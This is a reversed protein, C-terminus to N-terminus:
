TWTSRPDALHKKLTVPPRLLGERAPLGAARDVPGLRLRRQTPGGSFVVWLTDPEAAALGQAIPNPETSVELSNGLPAWGEGLNLGVAILARRLQEALKADRADIAVLQPQPSKTFRIVFSRIQLMGVGAAVGERHTLAAGCACGCPAFRGQNVGLTQCM